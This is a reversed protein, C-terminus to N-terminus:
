CTRLNRLSFHIYSVLNKIFKGKPRQSKGEWEEKGAVVGVYCSCFLRLGRLLGLHQSGRRPSRGQAAQVRDCVRPRSVYGGMGSVQETGKHVCKRPSGYCLVVFQTVRAVYM